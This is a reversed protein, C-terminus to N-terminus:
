FLTPNDYTAELARHASLLYMSISCSCYVIVLMAVAFVAIFCKVPHLCDEVLPIMQQLFVWIVFLLPYWMMMYIYTKIMFFPTNKRFPIDFILLVLLLMWPSLLTQFYPYLPKHPILMIWSLWASVSQSSFFYIGVFLAAVAFVIRGSMRFFYDYDKRYTSARMYVLTLLLATMACYDSSVGVFFLLLPILVLFPVGMLASTFFDVLGAKTGVLILFLSYNKQKLFSVVSM